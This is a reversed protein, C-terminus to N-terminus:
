EANTLSLPWYRPCAAFCTPSTKRSKLCIARRRSVQATTEPLVAVLPVQRYATLGDSEYAALSREDVIVGDGPVIERLGAILEARREFAHAEPKPMVLSM